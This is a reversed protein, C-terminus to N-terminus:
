DEGPLEVAKQWAPLVEEIMDRNSMGAARLKNFQVQGLLAYLVSAFRENEMDIMVQADADMIDAVAELSVAQKKPGVEVVFHVTDYGEAERKAAPAETIDNEVIEAKTATTNRPTAM